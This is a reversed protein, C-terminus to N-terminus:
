SIQTMAVKYAMGRFVIRESETALFQKNIIVEFLIFFVVVEVERTTVVKIGKIYRQTDSAEDGLRYIALSVNRTCNTLPTM